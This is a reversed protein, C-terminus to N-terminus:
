KAIGWFNLDNNGGYEIAFPFFREEPSLAEALDRASLNRYYDNTGPSDGPSVAHTGHEPRGIGACTIILLGGPATREYLARLTSRWHIDHELVETCIVVDFEYKNGLSAATLTHMAGVVDVNKGAVLDVGVYHCDTFLYRNTGNIDLSGVDLVSKNVFYYPFRRKVESCFKIVDNHM